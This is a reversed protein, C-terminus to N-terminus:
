TAPQHGSKDASPPRGVIQKYVRSFHYPNSFGLRYGVEKVSMETQTLLQQAYQVRLQLLARAPSTQFFRACRQSLVRQSVGLMRALEPVSPSNHMHQTFCEHLREMFRTEAPVPALWPALVSTPFVRVLRWFLESMVADQVHASARDPSRAEDSIKDLLPLYTEAPASTCQQEPTVEPRFFRLAEAGVATRPFSFRLGAYDLPPDCYDEHWDGPQVVMVSNDSLRLEHDNLLCRYKGRLVLIIEFESHQHRRFVYPEAMRNLIFQTFVPQCMAGPDEDHARTARNLHVIAPNPNAFVTQLSRKSRVRSLRHATPKAVLVTKRDDCRRALRIATAPTCLTDTM